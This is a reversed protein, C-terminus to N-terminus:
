RHHYPDAYSDGDPVIYGDVTLNYKWAKANAQDADSANDAAPKAAGTGADGPGLLHCSWLTLLMVGALKLIAKM